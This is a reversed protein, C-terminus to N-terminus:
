RKVGGGAAGVGATGRWAAPAAVVLEATDEITVMRVGPSVLGILTNMFTTKGSSMRGAVLVTEGAQVAAAIVDWTAASCCAPVYDERTLTQAQPVRICYAPAKTRPPLWGQFRQGGPLTGALSPREAHVVTQNLSAVLRIVAATVAPAQWGICQQPQGYRESWVTGDPNVMVECCGPQALADRVLAGLVHDLMAQQRPAVATTMM